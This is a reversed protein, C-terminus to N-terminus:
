TVPVSVRMRMAMLAQEFQPTFTDANGLGHEITMGRLRGRYDALRRPNRALSVALDIYEDSSRAILEPCGAGHLLSAGYSSSFRAGQLTIVPVGQWLAEATTNGGCYPYTDLAIDVDDYSQVVERRTGKGLLRLRAPDIGQDAFRRELARRNDAPSLEFNRLFMRADPVRRLIECWWGVLLPSIKTNAGFCGFTISGTRAVPPPSVPPLEPGDAYDFCFFCGPLREVQETFLRETAPPPSWMDGIVYDINPVATTSTYNLYVAQVPACRSAMASYRQAGSHGNIDVLVDIADARVLDLFERDDLSYVERIAAVHPEYLERFTEGMFFPGSVYLWTRFRRPDHRKLVPLLMYRVTPAEWFSCVYGVRLPRSGDFPEITLPPVDPDATAYHEAWSRHAQLLEASTADPDKLWADLAMSFFRATSHGREFALRWCSLAEDIRGRKVLHEFLERYPGIGDFGLGISREHAEMAEDMRWARRLLVGRVFWLRPNSPAASLLRESCVLGDAWRGEILAEALEAPLGQFEDREIM